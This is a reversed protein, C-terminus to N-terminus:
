GVKLLEVEFVLTAGGPIKPPSGADGYGLHAPITLKRKGGEKMGVIGQDWGQIVKGAGLQFDFPGRGYSADFQEGNLLTGKYNMSLQDGAKAAKGKGVRLDEIKLEKVDGTLKPDAKTTTTAAAPEPAPAQRGGLPERSLFWAGGLILLFCIAWTRSNDQM